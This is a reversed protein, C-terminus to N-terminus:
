TAVLACRSRYWVSALLTFGALGAWRIPGTEYVVTGNFVIFLMFTHLLFDMWRPRQGYSRADLWWWLADLCWLLTFAYSVYVGEGYGSVERTREFARAHSWGHYFHFAMALHVLFVVVAWTWSWRAQGLRRCAESTLSPHGGEVRDPMMPEAPEGDVANRVDSPAVSAVHFGKLSLRWIRPPLCCRLCLAVLYWALSLRVTNRVLAEGPEDYGWRSCALVGALTLVGAVFM